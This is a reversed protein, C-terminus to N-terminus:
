RTVCCSAEERCSQLAERCLLPTLCVREGEGQEWPPPHGTGDRRIYWFHWIPVPHVRSPGETPVEQMTRPGAPGQAMEAEPEQPM